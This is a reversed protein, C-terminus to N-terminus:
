RRNGDFARGVAKGLKTASLTKLSAFNLVRTAQRLTTALSGTLTQLISISQQLESLRFPLESARVSLNNVGRELETTRSSLRSIEDIVESQFTIRVRRFSLWARFASVFTILSLIAGIAIAIFLLTFIGFM